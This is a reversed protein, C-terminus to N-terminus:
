PTANGAGGGSTSTKTSKFAVIAGVWGNNAITWATSYTGTSNVVRYGSGFSMFDNATTLEAFGNTPGASPKGAAQDIIGGVILDNPNSVTVAGSGATTSTGSAGNSADLDSAVNSFEAIMGQVQVSSSMTVTVATGSGTSGVGYWIETGANSGAASNRKALTWTVGGGSVSSVSTASTNMGIVAILANGVAPAQGLTITFSGAGGGNGGKAQQVFAPNSQNPGSGGGSSGGTSTGGNGTGGSLPTGGGSGGGTPGSGPGFVVFMWCAGNNSVSTGSTISINNSSVSCGSDKLSVYNVNASGSLNILWQSSPTSSEISVVNSANGAITLNHNVTTQVGASFVLTKGFANSTLNYYTIAAVDAQTGSPSYQFTSTDATLIATPSSLISVPNAGTVIWTRNGADLTTVATDGSKGVSLTGSITITGSGSTTTTVLSVGSSNSFILNDFIWNNTGSSTGFNKDAGIRQEFTSGTLNVIGSGAVNGKVTITGTGSGSLTGNVSLDGTLSSTGNGVTFTAGSAVTTTGTVNLAPSNTAATAGANAGDGVTLNGGVNFTGSGLVQQTFGSPKLGLNNYTAATATAGNGTYNVNSTGSSLTGKATINLPTGTGSLTLTTAGLALTDSNTSSANGLTLTGSVTVS